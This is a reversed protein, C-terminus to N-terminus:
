ISAMIRYLVSFFFYYEVPSCPDSLAYVCILGQENTGYEKSMQEERKEYNEYIGGESGAMKTFDTIQKGIMVKM